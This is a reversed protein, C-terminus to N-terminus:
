FAVPCDAQSRPPRITATYRVGNSAVVVATVVFRGRVSVSGCSADSLDSAADASSGFGIMSTALGDPRIDAWVDTTTPSTSTWGAATSYAFWRTIVKARRLTASNSCSLEIRADYNVGYTYHDVGIELVVEDLYSTARLSQTALTCGSSDGNAALLPATLPLPGAAMPTTPATPAAPAAAGGHPLSAVMTAGSLAVAAVARVSRTASSRRIKSTM